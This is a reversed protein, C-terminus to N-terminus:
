DPYPKFGEGEDTPEYKEDFVKRAQDEAVRIEDTVPIRSLADAVSNDEGKIYVIRGDFQSMYEMWRAQRRSFDRQKHFNELTRHDTYIFFETGLLDARWKKLATIIALLEKEHVPYNLEAGRFPTSDFAVPRAERWSPGYSLVAGMRTDSADTTVFVKNMGPNTHDIVTLCEPSTVLRKIADFATQHEETWPPFVKDCEKTTLPNLVM